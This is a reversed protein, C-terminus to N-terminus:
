LASLLRRLHPYLDSALLGREGDAAAADAAAAHVTGAVAAAQHPNLGQALLAAVVGTLVDGM